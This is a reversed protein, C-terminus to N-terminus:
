CITITYQYNEVSKKTSQIYTDIYIGYTHIHTYVTHKYTHSKMYQHMDTFPIYTHINYITTHAYSILQLKDTERKWKITVMDYRQQIMVSPITQRATKPDTRTKSLSHATRM